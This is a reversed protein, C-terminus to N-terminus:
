GNIKEFREITERIGDELPTEYVRSFAQRIASGDCGEAFPLVTDAVEIKVGPKIQMIIQAVETLKTIPGGPNFGFAGKLPQEAAEIFQRAIDSAYHFQQAGGFNIAYNQGKAAAQM